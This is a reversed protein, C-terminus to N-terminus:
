LEKFKSVEYEEGYSQYSDKQLLTMIKLEHKKPPDQYIFDTVM